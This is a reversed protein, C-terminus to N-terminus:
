KDMLKIPNERVVVPKNKKDKVMKIIISVLQWVGVAAIFAGFVIKLVKGSLNVALLSGLVAVCTAPLAV